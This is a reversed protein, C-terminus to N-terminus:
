EILRVEGTTGDMEVVQGDELRDLLGKISVIAPIGMERAVIASHSLLSGREVLLGSAAPFLVVWGPDTQRAVLIEGPELEACRPDRVVRVPGRVTGACAGIGALRGSASEDAGEAAPAPDLEEPPLLASAAHPAGLTRFRDPPPNEERFRDFQRRREAVAAARIPVANTADFHGLLEELALYFVDDGSELTGDEALHAGLRRAIQRVRGFVRTREFRLNERDRVRARAQALVRRYIWGRLGKPEPASLNVDEDREDTKGNEQGYRSVTATGEPKGGAQRIREALADISRRLTTSDDRLTPSELKLEELCRDGFDELYRELAEDIAEGAARAEAMRRIRRAPEASIVDGLDRLAENALAEDGLWKACLKRLVGCWIMVFFDNVLPADWKKLLRRELERYHRVLEDPEMEEVPVRPSRLAEDLRPHFERIAAPLRFQRWLMGLVTRALDLRDQWPGVSSGAEIEAMVAEPMPETVGMMQEMFGRNSRFGPLMALVRYWNILNYYVRGRVLGLMAPFIDDGAEIRARPVSMLRCFERYVSEYARRAFSFTLPTTVGPYSEAINANSWIGPAADPDPQGTLSTIPRSQLLWLEGERDLAWEIDQPRGSHRACARALAAARRALAEDLVTPVQSPPSGDEMSRECGSGEDGRPDRVPLGHWTVKGERDVQASEGDVEGSVLKEGLGDVASVVAIRRRGSVPDASFAVGAAVPDIMRQVLAAPRAPAAGREEGYAAARDSGGSNWVARVRDLLDAKEVNLYSEFQGAFSHEASDEGVASSRVAVLPPPRGESDFTEAFARLIERDATEPRAVFFEPVRFGARALEALAAAKGGDRSNPAPINVATTRNGHLYFMPHNIQM